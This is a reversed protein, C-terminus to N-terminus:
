NPVRRKPKPGVNALDRALDFSVELRAVFGDLNRLDSRDPVQWITAPSMSFPRGQARSIEALVSSLLSAPRRLKRGYLKGYLGTSAFM